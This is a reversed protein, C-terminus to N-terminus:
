TFNWMRSRFRAARCHSVSELNGSSDILARLLRRLLLDIRLFNTTSPWFMPFLLLLSFSPLLLSLRLDISPWRKQWISKSQCGSSVLVFRGTNGERPQVCFCHFLPTEYKAGKGGDTQCFLLLWFQALTHLYRESRVYLCSCKASPTMEHSATTISSTCTFFAVRCSRSRSVQLCLVGSPLLTFPAYILKIDSM